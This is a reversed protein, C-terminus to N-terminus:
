IAMSFPQAPKQIKNFATQTPAQKKLKRVKLWDKSLNESVNMSMLMQLPTINKNNEERRKEPLAVTSANTDVSNNRWRAQRNNKLARTKATQGNHRSFNPLIAFQKEDDFELWGVNRMADCFGKHSVVGDLDEAVIGDVHGDVSNKDFWSWFRILLGLVFDKDIKLIRAMKFVEPKDCTSLELKIWEGAM